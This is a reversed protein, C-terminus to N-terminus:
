AATRFERRTPPWCGARWSAAGSLRFSTAFRVRGADRPAERAAEGDSVFLGAADAEPGGIMTTRGTAGRLSEVAGYESAPARSPQSASRGSRWAFVSAM